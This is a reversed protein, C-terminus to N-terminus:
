VSRSRAAGELMERVAALVPESGTWGRGNHPGSFELFKARRTAGALARGHAAAVVEDERSHLVLVPGGYRALAARTDLDDRLLLKIPLVPYAERGITALSTFASELVLAACGIESAAHAAVAGGLSEGWAVLPLEHARERAWRAAALGDELVHRVRLRGASAGFGRYDFLLVSAGLGHLVAALDLRHEISGANGHFVLVAAGAGERPIWWAHLEAGDASAIRVEEFGLGVARPDRSPPDGPDFILREQMVYAAACLLVWGAVLLLALWVLAATM